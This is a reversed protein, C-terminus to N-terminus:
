LNGYNDLCLDHGCHFITEEQLMWQPNGKKYKPKTGIPNSVM